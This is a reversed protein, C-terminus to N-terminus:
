KCEFSECKTEDSECAANGGIGIEKAQCKYDENYICNKAECKVVVEHENGFMVMGGKKM